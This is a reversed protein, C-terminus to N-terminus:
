QEKNVKSSENYKERNVEGRKGKAYNSKRYNRIIYYKAVDMDVKKLLLGVISGLFFVLILVFYFAISNIYDTWIVGMTILIGGGPIELRAARKYVDINRKLLAWTIVQDDPEKNIFNKLWVRYRDAEPNEGQMSKKLTKKGITVFKLIQYMIYITPLYAVIISSIKFYDM